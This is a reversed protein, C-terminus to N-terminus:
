RFWNENRKIIHWIQSSSIFKGRVVSPCIFYWLKRIKVSIEQLNSQECRLWHLLHALNMLLSEINLAVAGFSVGTGTSWEFFSFIYPLTPNTSHFYPVTPFNPCPSMLYHFTKKKLDWDQYVVYFIRVITLINLIGHLLKTCYDLLFNRVKFFFIERDWKERGVRYGKGREWFLLWKPEVWLNLFVKSFGHRFLLNHEFYYNCFISFIPVFLVTVLVLHKSIRVWKLCKLSPPFLLHRSWNWEGRSFYVPVAFYSIYM